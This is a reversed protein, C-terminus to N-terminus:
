QHNWGIEHFCAAVVSTSPAKIYISPQVKILIYIFPEFFVHFQFIVPIPVTLTLRESSSLKLVVFAILKRGDIEPVIMMELNLTVKLQRSKFTQFSSGRPTSLSPFAYKFLRNLILQLRIHTNDIILIEYHEDTYNTQRREINTSPTPDKISIIEHFFQQLYTLLCLHNRRLSAKQEIAEMENFKHEILRCTIAFSQRTWIYRM